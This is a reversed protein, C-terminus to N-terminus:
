GKPHNKIPEQHTGSPNSMTEPPNRIPKQHNSITESQNKIPERHNRIPEKHNRILTQHNRIPEQHPKLEKHIVSSSFSSSEPKNILGYSFKVSFIPSSNQFIGDKKFYMDDIMPYWNYVLYYILM